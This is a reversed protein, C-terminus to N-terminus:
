AGRSTTWRRLLVLGLVIEAAMFAPTTRFGERPDQIYARAHHLMRSCVTKCLDKSIGNTRSSEVYQRKGFVMVRTNRFFYISTDADRSAVERFLITSLIRRLHLSM